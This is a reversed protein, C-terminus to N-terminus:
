VRSQYYKYKAYCNAVMTCSHKTLIIYAFIILSSVCSIFTDPSFVGSVLYIVAVCPEQARQLQGLFPCIPNNQTFSCPHPEGIFTQNAYGLHTSNSDWGSPPQVSLNEWSLQLAAVIGM